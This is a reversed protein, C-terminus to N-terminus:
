AQRNGLPYYPFAAPYVYGPAWYPDYGWYGYIGGYYDRDTVLEPDYVPVDSMKERSRDIDVTKQEDNVRSVAEIPVLYHDQGIGLFGGSGVRIFRVRNEQDDIMLDDVKGVQDGNRDVVEYGRIDSGDGIL